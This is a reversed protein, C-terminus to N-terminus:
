WSFMQGVAGQILYVNLLGGHYFIVFILIHVVHCVVMCMDCHPIIIISLNALVLSTNILILQQFNCSM